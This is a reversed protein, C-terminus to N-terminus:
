LEKLNAVDERLRAGGSELKVLAKGSKMEAIAGAGRTTRVMQGIGLREVPRQRRAPVGRQRCAGRRKTKRIGRGELGLISLGVPVVTTAVM